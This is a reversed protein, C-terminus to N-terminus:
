SKPSIPIKGDRMAKAGDQYATSAIANKTATRFENGYKWGAERINDDSPKPYMDKGESQTRYEEMMRMITDIVDKVTMKSPENSSGDTKLSESFSLGDGAKWYVGNRWVVIMLDEIDKRDAGRGPQSQPSSQLHVKDFWEKRMRQYSENMECLREILEDRSLENAIDRRFDIDPFDEKEDRMSKLSSLESEIQEIRQVETNFPTEFDRLNEKLAKILEDQKQIIDETKMKENKAM